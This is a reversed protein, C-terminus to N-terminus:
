ILAFDLDARKEIDWIRLMKEPDSFAELMQDLRKFNRDYIHYVNAFYRLRQQAIYGNSERVEKEFKLFENM